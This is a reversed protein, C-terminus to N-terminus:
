NMVDVHVIFFTFLKQVYECDPYGFPYNLLFIFQLLSNQIKM